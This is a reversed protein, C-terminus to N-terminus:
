KTEEGSGIEIGDKSVKAKRNYYLVASTVNWALAEWFNLDKVHFLALMVTIVSLILITLSVSGTGHNSILPIYIGNENSIKLLNKLKGLM